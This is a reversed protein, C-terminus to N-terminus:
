GVRTTGQGSVRRLVSRVRRGFWSRGIGLQKEWRTIYSGVEVSFDDIALFERAADNMLRVAEPRQDLHLEWIDTLSAWVVYLGGASYDEVMHNSFLDSLDTGRWYVEEADSERLLRAAIDRAKDACAPSLYNPNPM